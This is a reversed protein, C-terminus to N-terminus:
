LATCYLKLGEDKTRPEVHFFNKCYYGQSNAKGTAYNIIAITIVIIIITRSVTASIAVGIGVVRNIVVSMVVIIASAPYGTAMGILFSIPIIVSFAGIAVVPVASGITDAVIRLGVRRRTFPSFVVVLVIAASFAGM